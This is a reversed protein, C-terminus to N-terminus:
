RAPCPKGLLALASCVEPLAAYDRTARRDRHGAEFLAQRARAVDPVAAILLGLVGSVQATALSTGDSFAFGGGPITTIIEVGPAAIEVHSGRNNTAFPAGDQDLAGVGIVTPYAAPYRPEDGGDNGASAVALMGLGDLRAMARELLPNPPGVLSLNLVQAEAEFAADFGVLVDFLLCRDAEAPDSAPRCVPVALLEAGPAVGAIGFGNDEAAHTIGAIMTGHGGVGTKPLASPRVVRIGPLDPHAVDPLSDLVAIRAGAGDTVSRSADVAIWDLAYQLPRYPDPGSGPIAEGESTEVAAGEYESNEVVLADEPLGRVLDSAATGPPGVVISLTACIVPSFHSSAIRAGPALVLGDTDVSGDARKPLMLLVEATGSPTTSPPAIAAADPPFPECSEEARLPATTALIAIWVAAAISRWTRAARCM